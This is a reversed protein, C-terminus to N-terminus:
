KSVGLMFAEKVLKIKKRRKNNKGDSITIIRDAEKAINEDHTIM